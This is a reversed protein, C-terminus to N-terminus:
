TVIRYTNLYGNDTLKKYYKVSFDYDTSLWMHYGVKKGTPYYEIEFIKDTTKLHKIANDFTKDDLKMNNMVKSKLLPTFNGLELKQENYYKEVYKLVRNARVNEPTETINEVYEPELLKFFEIVRDLDSADVYLYKEDQKGSMLAHNMAWEGILDQNTVLNQKWVGTTKREDIKNANIELIKNQAEKTFRIIKGRIENGRKVMYEIMNNQADTYYTAHESMEDVDRYADPQNSYTQPVVLTRRLFGKKMWNQVVDTNETIDGHVDNFFTIYRGEPIPKKSSSKTVRPPIYGGGKLENILNTMQFAYSTPKTSLEMASDGEFGGIFINNIEGSDTGKVAEDVVQDLDFDGQKSKDNNKEKEYLTKGEAVIDFVKEPSTMNYSLAIEQIDLDKQIDRTWKQCLNKTATKQLDSQGMLLCYLNPRVKTGGFAIFPFSDVDVEILTGLTRSATMYIAAEEYPIYHKAHGAIITAFTNIEIENLKSDENDELTM